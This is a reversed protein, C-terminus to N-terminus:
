MEFATYSPNTGAVTIIGTYVFAGSEYSGGTGDAAGTCAKLVLDYVSTSDCGSGFKVFLKNTGENQILFHRRDTNSALATTSTILGTTIVGASQDIASYHSM